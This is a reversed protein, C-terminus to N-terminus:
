PPDPPPTRDELPMLLLGFALATCFVSLLGVFIQPWEASIDRVSLVFLYGGVVMLILGALRIKWKIM